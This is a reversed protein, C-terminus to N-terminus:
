TRAAARLMQKRQRAVTRWWLIMPVIWLLNLWLGYRLVRFATQFFASGRIFADAASNAAEAAYAPTGLAFERAIATGGVAAKWAVACGGIAEWGIAQGGVAFGGISFGGLSILGAALGGSSILGIAIGGIAIPAVAVGGLAFLGGIANDAVVIWGKVAVGANAASGGIRIHILPLGCFRARSRYEFPPRKEQEEERWLARGRARFWWMLAFIGALYAICLGFVSGIFISPSPHVAGANWTMLGFSAVMFGGIFAVLSRYLKKVFRRQNESRAGEMGVRYGMFMALLPAFISGFIGALGAAKTGAGSKVATAAVVAAASASNIGVPLAALVALTFAKGPATRKLAGEVFTVVEEQLLRRGRSLRQKVADQSLDLSEAVREVSQGERYFLILPERYIQPIRELSRWLIAEEEKTMTHEAPLPEIAASEEVTELSQANSLPKRGERRLFNNIRNRAIGCLWARLKAPERLHRLHKWATIFTEQALDESQGLSGTASYALSCILSQYRSVIREFADRNGALSQGVLGADSMGLSSVMETTMM